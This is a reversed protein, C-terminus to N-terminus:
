FVSSHWSTEKPASNQISPIPSPVLVVILVSPHLYKRPSNRRPNPNERAGQHPNSGRLDCLLFPNPALFRLHSGRIFVLLCSHIERQPKTSFPFRLRRSKREKLNKEAGGRRQTLKKVVSPVSSCPHKKGFKQRPFSEKRAQHKGKRRPTLLFDAIQERDEAERGGIGTKRSRTKDSSRSSSM